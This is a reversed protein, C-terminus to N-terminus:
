RVVVLIHCKRLKLEPQPLIFRGDRGYAAMVKCGEALEYQEVNKDWLHEDVVVARHSPAGCSYSPSEFWRGEKLKYLCIAVIRKSARGDGLPNKSWSPRNIKKSALKMVRTLGAKGIGAIINAGAEVTEPRETSRRLTLCPVGLTLAEEQVGGSDTM